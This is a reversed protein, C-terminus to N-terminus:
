DGNKAELSTIELAEGAIKDVFEPILESLKIVEELAFKPDIVCRHFIHQILATKESIEPNFYRNKVEEPDILQKGEISNSLETLLRLSANSLERARIHDELSAGKIKIYCNEKPVNLFESLEPSYIKEELVFEEAAKTFVEKDLIVEKAM